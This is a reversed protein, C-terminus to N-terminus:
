FTLIKSVAASIPKWLTVGVGYTVVDYRSTLCWQKPNDVYIQISQLTTQLPQAWVSQLEWFALHRASRVASACVLRDRRIQTKNSHCCVRCLRINIHKLLTSIAVFSLREPCESGSEDDRFSWDKDLRLQLLLRLTASFSLRFFSASSGSTRAKFYKESPLDASLRM